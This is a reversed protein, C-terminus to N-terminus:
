RTVEGVACVHGCVNRGSPGYGAYISGAPSQRHLAAVSEAGDAYVACCLTSSENQVSLLCESLLSGALLLTAFLFETPAASTQLSPLPVTFPSAQFLLFFTPLGFGEPWDRIRM